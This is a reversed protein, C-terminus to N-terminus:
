RVEFSTVGLEARWEESTVERVIAAPPGEWLWEALAALSARDGAAVIEVRGDPLNRAWGELGLRRAHQAATARYYVGQVKGVVIFRVAQAPM